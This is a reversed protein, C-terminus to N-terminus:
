AESGVQEEKVRVDKGVKPAETMEEMIEAIRVDLRNRARDFRDQGEETTALAEDMRSRCQQGRSRRESLGAQLKECGQCDVTYGHKEFDGPYLRTWRPVFAPAIPEADASKPIAEAFGM